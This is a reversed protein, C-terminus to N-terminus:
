PCRLRHRRGRGADRRAAGSDVGRIGDRPGSVVGEVSRPREAALLRQLLGRSRQETPPEPCYPQRIDVFPGRISTCTRTQAKQELTGEPGERERRSASSLNGKGPSGLM